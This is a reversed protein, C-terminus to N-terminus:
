GSVTERWTETVITNGLDGQTSTSGVLEFKGTRTPMSEYMSPDYDVEVITQSQTVVNIVTSGQMTKVIVM